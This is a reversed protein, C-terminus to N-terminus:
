LVITLVKVFDTSKNGLLMDMYMSKNKFVLAFAYMLIQVPAVGKTKRVNSSKLISSIHFRDFFIKISDVNQKTDFDNQSIIKSM